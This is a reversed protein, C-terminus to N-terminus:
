QRCDCGVFNDNIEKILNFNDDLSIKLDSNNRRKNSNTGFGTMLPPSSKAIKSYEAYALVAVYVLLVPCNPTSRFLDLSVFYKQAHLCHDAM